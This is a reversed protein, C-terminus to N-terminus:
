DQRALADVLDKLQTHIFEFTHEYAARVDHTNGEVKSPDAVSWDICVTVTRHFRLSYYVTEDFVIVVHYHSLNPVQEISQPRHQSVDLGKEALFPPLRPDINRPDLGASAFLMNSLSLSTAIAEAMLSRCHNHKDVFLVRVVEPARHKVFDGTCMYLAEACIDRAEDSIRELRRSITSLIAFAEITLESRKQMQALSEDLDRRMRDITEEILITSRALEVDKTDFARVSDRLMKLSAQGMEEFPTYSIGPRDSDFKLLRRAIAEAHDGIRELESSIKMAAYGFRLHGAAPQQRILFELCLRDLQQESEDIQQDRLIVLYASQRQGSVLADLAERVARDCLAGMTRVQTRILDIDHQLSAELHSGMGGIM